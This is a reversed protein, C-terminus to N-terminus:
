AAVSLSSLLMPSVGSITRWARMSARTLEVEMKNHIMEKGNSASEMRDDLIYDRGQTNVWRPRLLEIDKAQRPRLLHFASHSCGQRDYLVSHVM